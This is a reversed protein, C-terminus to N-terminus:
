GKKNCNELLKRCNMARLAAVEINNTTAAKKRAKTERTVHGKYMHEFREKYLRGRPTDEWIPLNTVPDKGCIMQMKSKASVGTNSLLAPTPLRTGNTGIRSQKNYFNHAKVSVSIGKSVGDYMFKFSYEPQMGLLEIELYTMVFEEGAKVDIWEVETDLYGTKSTREVPLRPIKLDEHAVCLAAFPKSAKHTGTKAKSNTAIRLDNVYSDYRKGSNRLSQTWFPSGLICIVELSDSKTFLISKDVDFDEEDILTEKNQKTEDVEETLNNLVESLATGQM